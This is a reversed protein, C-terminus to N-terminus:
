RRTRNARRVIGCTGNGEQDAERGATRAVDHRAEEAALHLLHELLRDNDLVADTPKTVIM